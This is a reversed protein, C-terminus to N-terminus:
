WKVVLEEKTPLNKGKHKLGLERKEWIYNQYTDRYLQRVQFNWKKAEDAAWQTAFYEKECIKMKETNTKIHGIEHFLCLIDWESPDKFAKYPMAIYRLSVYSFAIDDPGCDGPLIIMEKNYKHYVADFMKRREKKTM